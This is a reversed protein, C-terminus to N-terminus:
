MIPIEPASASSSFKECRMVETDRFSGAPGLPYCLSSRFERSCLCDPNGRRRYLRSSQESPSEAIVFEKVAGSGIKVIPWPPERLPDFPFATRASLCVVGRSGGCSYAALGRGINGSPAVLAGPFAALSLSGRALLDAVLLSDRAFANPPTDQRLSRTRNNCPGGFAFAPGGILWFRPSLYTRRRQPTAHQRDDIAAALAAPKRCDM